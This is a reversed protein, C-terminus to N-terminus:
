IRHRVGAIILQSFTYSVRSVYTESNNWSDGAYMERYLLSLLQRTCIYCLFKIKKYSNYNNYYTYIIDYVLLIRNYQVIQLLIHIYNNNTVTTYIIIYQRKIVIIYRTRISLTRLVAICTTFM